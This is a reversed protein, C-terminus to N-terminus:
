WSRRAKAVSVGFHEQTLLSSAPAREPGPLPDGPGNIAAATFAFPSKINNIQGFTRRTDAFSISQTPSMGADMRGPCANGRRQRWRLPCLDPLSDAVALTTQGLKYQAFKPYPVPAADSRMRDVERKFSAPDLPTKYAIPDGTKKSSPAVLQYADQIKGVALKALFKELVQVAEAEPREIRQLTMAYRQGNGPRRSAVVISYTGDKASEFDLQVSNAMGTKLVLRQGTSDEIRVLPVFLSGRSSRVTIRYRMGRNMKLRHTRTPQKDTLESRVTVAGAPKGASQGVMVEVAVLVCLAALARPLAQSSRM